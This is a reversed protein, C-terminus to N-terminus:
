KVSLCSVHVGVGMVRITLQTSSHKAQANGSVEDSNWSIWCPLGNLVQGAAVLVSKHELILTREGEHDSLLIIGASSHQGGAPEAIYTEIGGPLSIEKGSPRGEFLAFFGSALDKAAM